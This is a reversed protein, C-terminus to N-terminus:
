RHRAAYYLIDFLDSSGCETALQKLCEGMDPAGPIAAEGVTMEPIDRFAEDVKSQPMNLIKAIMTPTPILAPKGNAPSICYGVYDHALLWGAKYKQEAGVRQEVMPM